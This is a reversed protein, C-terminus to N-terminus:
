FLNLMRRLVWEMMLVALLFLAVGPGGQFLPSEVVTTRRWLGRAQERLFAEAEAEPWYAGGTRSAIGDLFAADVELRAGEPVLPAVPLRKEFREVTRDGRLATLAFLYEGRVPFVLRARSTGPLGQVPTVAVPASTGDPAALTASLRLPEEPGGDLVRVEAVATEGPRYAPRDWRVSLLQGGESAGALYRVAQRWFRGYAARLAESRRAWKWTTNAALGMTRGRGYSQVAVVPVTGRGVSARLVATAGPRLPGPRNVGELTPAEASWATGLGAVVPHSAAAAPVLVPFAGTVPPPEDPSVAWPMLSALPSGAYGGRGFADDGGLFVAAGGEEVRRALAAMQAGSWDAAPFSGLVVVDFARLVGDDVPFGNELSAPDAPPEGLVTFREGVTRFLGTFAVGPDRALEDRVMKFDMGIERTFFLVHVSKKRVDVTFLRGNNLASVEGEVPPLSARYRRLGAGAATVRFRATARGRSLDLPEEGAARWTGDAQEEELRVVTRAARAAFAPSAALLRADVSVEFAIDKEASAPADVADVALDDWGAPDTGFGVISVPVGPLRPRDLREDGGDTFLVIGACASADFGSDLALLCAGLDTDGAAGTRARALAQGSSARVGTDFERLDLPVGAPLAERLSAALRRARERRPAEGDDATEMSGSVDVVALLAGGEDARRERRMVPEFLGLLLVLLVLGKPALLLAVRGPRYRGRLRRALAAMWGACALVLLGAWLPDLHSHWQLAGSM